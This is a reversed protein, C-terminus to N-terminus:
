LNEFMAGAEPAKKILKLDLLQRTLTQWREETMVGLGKARTHDTEVLAKQAEASEKFTNEDMSKNLDQMMRNAAEPRDLYERWGARVSSVVAKVLEPNRALVEARTVLVTTYPNYGEDAVLFTRVQVGAKKAALPEATVFCQQSFNKDNLFNAIGGLYPVVKAKMNKKDAASPAFKRELYLAYPLGKQLALTGESVYVDKLSAFERGAHTMIGQPNTQYAAFLAVVTSGHSRSIVVEDASVIGFDVKGAAVMQVVPTGAGGPLIEVELGHKRYHGGTEAAYFGGFQPEPKWNLALKIKEKARTSPGAEAQAGSADLSSVFFAFVFTLLSLRVMSM